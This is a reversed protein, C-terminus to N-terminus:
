FDAPTFNLDLLKWEGYRNAPLMAYPQCAELAGIASKMLAPGKPSASAEILIPDAALRGDPTMPVRLTIRIQDERAVSDPLKLCTKLHRRFEGVVSSQVDASKSARADFDDGSKGRPPEAPLVPPLGLMVHYKVSVDPEPPLYTPAPVKAAQQSPTGAQQANPPIVSPDATPPPPIPAPQPNASPPPSASEIKASADEVVDPKAAPELLPEKRKPAPPAEAPSVIEVKIPEATVSNFPHVHAFFLVLM